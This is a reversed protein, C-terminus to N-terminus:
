WVVMTMNSKPNPSAMVLNGPSAPTWDVVPQYGDGQNISVQGTIVEVGTAWAPVSILFGMVFATLVSRHM